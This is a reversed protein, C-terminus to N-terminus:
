KEAPKRESNKKMAQYSDRAIEELIDKDVDALRKIYLCSKGTSHNGLQGLLSEYREFGPMIYVTLARKRPSFGIMPWYNVEGKSNHYAYRDFGVISDGWLVAKQGTVGEMMRLLEMGDARRHEDEVGLLFEEVDADSPQTKIEAM